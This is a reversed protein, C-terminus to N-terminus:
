SDSGISETTRKKFGSAFRQFAISSAIKGYTDADFNSDEQYRMVRQMTTSVKRHTCWRCLIGIGPVLFICFLLLSNQLIVASSVTVTIVAYSGVRCLLQTNLNDDRALVLIALANRTSSSVSHETVLDGLEPLTDLMGQLTQPPIAKSTTLAERLASLDVEKARWGDLIRARWVNLSRSDFFLFLGYAPLLFLIGTAPKLSMAFVVVCLTILGITGFSIVLRRYLRTRATLTDSTLDILERYNPM